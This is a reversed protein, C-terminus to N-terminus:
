GASYWWRGGDCGRRPGRRPRGGACRQAPRGAAGNLVLQGFADRCRDDFYTCSGQQVVRMADAVGQVMLEGSNVGCPSPGEADQVLDVVRYVEDGDEADLVAGINVPRTLILHIEGTELILHVAPRGGTRGGCPQAPGTSRSAVWRTGTTMGLWVFADTAHRGAGM